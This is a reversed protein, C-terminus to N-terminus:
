KRRQVATSLLIHGAQAQQILDLGLLERGEKEWCGQALAAWLGEGAGHSSPRPVRVSDPQVRRM